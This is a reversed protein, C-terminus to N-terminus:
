SAERPACLSCYAGRTPETGCSSCRTRLYESITMERERPRLNMVAAVREGRKVIYLM